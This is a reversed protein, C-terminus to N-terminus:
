LKKLLNELEKITKITYFYSYKENELKTFFLIRKLKFVATEVGKIDIYHKEIIGDGFDSYIVFDPIYTIARVNGQKGKFKDQLVIKPQLDFKIGKSLLFLYAQSEIKSDFKIGKITTKTANYKNM